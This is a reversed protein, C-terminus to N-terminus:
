SLGGPGTFSYDNAGNNEVTWRSTVANSLNGEFSTATMVGVVKAGGHHSIRFAEAPSGGNSTSFILDSKNEVGGRQSNEIKSVTQGGTGAQQAAFDVIGTVTDDVEGIATTFLRLTATRTTTNSVIIVNGTNTGYDNAVATANGIIM